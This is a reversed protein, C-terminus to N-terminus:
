RHGIPLHSLASVAVKHPTAPAAPYCRSKPPNICKYVYTDPTNCKIGVVIVTVIVVVTVSVFVFVFVFVFVIDIDYLLLAAAKAKARSM